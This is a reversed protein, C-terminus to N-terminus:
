DSPAGFTFGTRQAHPILQGFPSDSSAGGVPATSSPIEEPSSIRTLTVSGALVPDIGAGAFGASPDSAFNFQGSAPQTVGSSTIVGILLLGCVIVGFAGILAPKFDFDLGLRQRWTVIATAEGAEIRSIVKSSFEQFYRPPPQEYKKLTLLKRLDSFQDHETEM